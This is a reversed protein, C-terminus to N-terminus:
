SCWKTWQGQMSAQVFKTKFKEADAEEVMSALLKRFAHSHKPPIEPISSSGFGVKHSQHSGLIQKLSAMDVVESPLVSIPIEYIM